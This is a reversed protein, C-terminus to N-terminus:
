AATVGDAVRWSGWSEGARFIFSRVPRFSIM